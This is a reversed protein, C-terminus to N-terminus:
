SRKCKGRDLLDRYIELVASSGRKPDFQVSYKKKAAEGLAKCLERNDALALIAKALSQPNEPECIIGTVQDEVIDEIRNALTVISPIGFLGAEFVSRGVGNLHSPFIVVDTNTSLLEEIDKVFGLLKVTAELNNSTVFTNLRKQVEPALGLISVTRGIISSYFDDSRSNTGAINFHIDQRGMKALILAANALDWIGKMPLLGALFTVRLPRGPDFAASLTKTRKPEVPNYVISRRIIDRLSHDVSGDICILIDVYNNVVSRNLRRIWSVKTDAVNRAHMVVPYGRKKALLASPLMGRENLHVIDPNVTDLISRFRPLWLCHFIFRLIELNRFGRLPTGYSSLLLPIARITSVEIGERNFLEAIPGPPCVVHPKVLFKPFGRLLNLLSKTSGGFAEGVHHVFLVRIPTVKPISDEIM